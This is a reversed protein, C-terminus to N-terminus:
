DILGLLKNQVSKLAKITEKEYVRELHEIDLSDYVSFCLVEIEKKTLEIKKM